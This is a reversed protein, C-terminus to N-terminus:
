LVEVWMGTNATRLRNDYMGECNTMPLYYRGAYAANLQLRYTRQTDNKDNPLDFYTMVRDDRIDQYDAPSSGNTPVNSMRDNMIEWGSPFIQTLALEEFPFTFSSQRKITVEAVFDTGQQLRAPDLPRNQADLYRVSIALNSNVPQQDGKFPQAGLALRAYLKGSGNNKVAINRNSWANETFNVLAIPKSNDGNQFSGEGLRYAFAPGNGGFSKQVYKSLARLSTALTQTNWYWGNERGLETTLNSVMNQARNMDNAAVYTELLLARDRVLSGYTPGCYMYSWDDRWRSNLIDRTAEPKGAASYANALMGATQLYLDKKERLRNMGSLDPKGALALTYLRYAQTLDSDYYGNNSNPNWRRADSAQASLWRELTGEPVAYGKNKAELLFHGAYTSSWDSVYGGPWYAFGGGSVQRDCIKTIAATVYKDVDQRQKDSLPAIMGVYLQPFATSTTQEVCGHPYRILYSLHRSLNFSPLPSVEITASAIDSYLAPDFGAKWEQGPEVTGEWVYNVVPNPNRVLIEIEASATEGAGEASVVFKAAGTKQGVKLDFYAMKEGPQAFNLTNQGAGGISVLGSKERVSVTASKVKAEMAFVNVPLKLTEGPGLVRPLTPLVMLPKRVPCTKEASGYAGQGNAAPASFVAMVRVSGIYNSIKLKHVARQGKALAFPGVHLVAPKFRNVTPNKSKQDIGDGGIALIRTLEAGYAGLVYDYVDWTKVGLAERAYFAEWPNPTKFRTLDLLGEDVIALTYTCPKGSAERVAVNFTEEPRLVDPMDIQPTLRTVPNEVNIPLVGYMRIPLDNKTQAHPQILSVHAYVTPAMNEETKFKLLNDGSKADFWIHKAVRTGTELTLLIRGSESAPVKLTVEEGVNYKEKDATFSLMAAANRSRLDDLEDPYGMWFFDGAAHSGNVDVARVLYRGWGNVKAKWTAIGNANTTLTVTELADVFDASNFQAVNADRDEDWWWRWDCRYLGIKIPQNALPKGNQDVLAFSFTGGNKWDISKSGWRDTPISVGVFRDYPFYELAFNDSSFDGSQEFARVKFNAVLKGPAATESEGMKLPVTANGNADVNAEFLTQPESYYSRAPDDFAFNRFNPFETKASRMVMEVKAKLNRAVAGHLWSVALKGNLNEDQASLFKKGFDLALKLRNPKVTEIKLTKTFIAGGVKVRCTWNGTPAEPRTACHMAFVGGIGNTYVNRFQVAGRPDTLEMAVPHGAPLKGTKDELVFNLYLSDGPRWVGREGYIFGKLGKQLETGAVDFRSLSLTSGDAMRVYGRRGNAGGTAVALFPTEGTKDLVATGDSGTRTKAVSQLQYSFVEIGVNSVPQATHLDTVAFFMSGDRGRKATIGLDSVFVNRKVFHERNYYEKSCPNERNDWNYDDGEGWWEDEEGDNWYIGRWGGMVSNWMGDDDRTGTAALDGDNGACTTYSRRFAFRVQYIAGPDQKIMDKLDLAYRQWTTSTADPNLEALNIKKQYIIKGVRELENDGEIENVQLFQLINSDFIKFVEVDLATLGTAEFPFIVGGNNAQPIIAGRGVLRVGPKLDEFVLDWEGGANLTKGATNRVGADIVLKHAGRLRKGPYVRVHNGDTVFRLRGSHGELRVLGALERTATVRDSFNIQVCQSEGQIARASLVVFEDNAPVVQETGGKKTAGIAEGNWELKVKSRVPAREVGAIAWEHTMNDDSHTWSVALARAGQRARLVKEVKAAECPENVRVRGTLRQSGPNEDDAAIGDNEVEFAIERVDLGFEFRRLMAPADPCIKRLALKGKYHKGFPLKQDPQFKLTRDTEWVAKGEISPSFTLIGEEVPQGVQEAGVVANVFRLRIPDEPGIAGSSYAYLYQSLTAYYAENKKPSWPNLLIGGLLLAVAALAAILLRKRM